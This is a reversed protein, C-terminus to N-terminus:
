DLITLLGRNLIEAGLRRANFCEADTANKKADEANFVIGRSDCIQM